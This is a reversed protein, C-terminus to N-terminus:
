ELNKLDINFSFHVQTQFREFHIEITNIIENVNLLDKLFM